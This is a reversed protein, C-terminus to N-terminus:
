GFFCHHPDADLEALCDDISRIERTPVYPWWKGSARHWYLHWKGDYDTYRVQFFESTTTQSPDSFLPRREAAAIRNDKAVVLFWLKGAYQNKPLRGAFYENIRRTAEIRVEEPMPKKYTLAKLGSEGAAQYANLYYALQEEKIGAQDAFERFSQYGKETDLDWQAATEALQLIEEFGRRM